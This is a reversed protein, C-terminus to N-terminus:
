PMNPDLPLEISTKGGVANVKNTSAVNVNNTSNVNDEKEQDIGESDKRNSQTSSVIPEYNMTRTLADIDFLWDPGSGVVNTNERVRIHLNEEWIRTRINCYELPKVAKITCNRTIKGGKPNWRFAVYGGDIEEYDTLYSMNGTM